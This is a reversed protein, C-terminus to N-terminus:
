MRMVVILWTQAIFYAPYSFSTTGGNHAKPVGLEQSWELLFM